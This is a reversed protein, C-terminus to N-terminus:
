KENLIWEIFDIEPQTINFHKYLEENTWDRSLDVAPTKSYKPNYDRKVIGLTGRAFDTNLFDCFRKAEEETSFWFKNKNSFRTTGSLKPSMDKPNFSFIDPKFFKKNGTKHINGRVLSLEVVWGDLKGHKKPIQWKLISDKEKLTWFRQHFTDYGLFNTYLDPKNNSIVCKVDTLDNEYILGNSHTKWYTICLLAQIDVDPFANKSHVVRIYDLKKSFTSILDTWRNKDRQDLFPIAPHIGIVHESNEQALKLFKLYVMQKSLYPPNMVVVDTKVWPQELSNGLVINHNIWYYAEPSYDTYELLREKAEIVNDPLIDVGYTTSIAQIACHGKSIKRKVIEVLINGNGCAPDLFTKSENWVDQPLRDLMENVLSSPTYVEGNEQVRKKSKINSM